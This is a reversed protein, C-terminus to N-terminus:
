EVVGDVIIENIGQKKQLHWLTKGFKIYDIPVLCIMKAIIDKDLCWEFICTENYEM